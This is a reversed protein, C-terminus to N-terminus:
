RLDVPQDFSTAFTMQAAKSRLTTVNGYSPDRRDGYSRLSLQQVAFPLRCPWARAVRLGDCRAPVAGTAPSRVTPVVSTGAGLRRSPRGRGMPVRRRVPGLRRRSNWLCRPCSWKASWWGRSRRRARAVGVRSGLPGAGAWTRRDARRTASGDWCARDSSRRARSGGRGGPDRPAVRGRHLVLARGAAARRRGRGPAALVGDRRDHVASRLLDDSPVHDSRHDAPSCGSPAM